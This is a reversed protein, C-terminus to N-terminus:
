NLQISYGWSVSSAVCLLLLLSTVEATNFICQIFSQEKQNVCALVNGSLLSICAIPHITFAFYNGQLFVIKKQM